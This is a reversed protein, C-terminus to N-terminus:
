EVPTWNEGDSVLIEGTDKDRIKRGKFQSAAPLSSFQGIEDFRKVLEDITKESKRDALDQAM